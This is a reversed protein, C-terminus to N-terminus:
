SKRILTMGDYLPLLVTTVDPDAVVKENFEQLGRTQPDHPATELAAGSWLTNDAMIFGGSRVLPKVMDYYQPYLRKNADIYVLDWPEDSIRPVVDLADGAYLTIRDALPSASFTELLAPVAEEDIEVTHVMGGEAVGEAFCLASYGSFTGLELVRRPKIMSTLMSILRGQHPDCCMRPYLRTLYTRRYLADLYDPAASTHATLFRQTDNDM